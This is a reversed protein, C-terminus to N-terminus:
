SRGGDVADAQGKQYCARYLVLNNMLHAPQERLGGASFLCGNAHAHRVAM